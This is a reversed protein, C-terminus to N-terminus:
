EWGFSVVECGETIRRLIPEGRLRGFKEIIDKDTANSSILLPLGYSHRFDILAEIESLLVDERSGIAAFKGFDDWVIVPARKLRDIKELFPKVGDRNIDRTVDTQLLFRVPVNEDVALRFARDYISRSKGRGSRGIAYIGRKGHKWGRIREIQTRYPRLRPDNFDTTQLAPPVAEEWEKRALARETARKEDRRRKMEAEYEAAEQPTQSRLLDFLSVDGAAADTFSKARDPAVGEPATYVNISTGPVPAKKQIPAFPADDDETPPKM